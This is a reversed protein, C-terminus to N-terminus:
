YRSDGGARPHVTSGIVPLFFDDWWPGRAPPWWRVLCDMWRFGIFFIL